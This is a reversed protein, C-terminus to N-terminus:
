GVGPPVLNRRDCLGAETDDGGIHAPEAPGARRGIDAGIGEEVIDAVHDRQHRREAFLLGDNDAMIPARRDGPVRRHEARIDEGLDGAEANRRRGASATQREIGQLFVADGVEVPLIELWGSHGFGLELAVDGRRHSDDQASAPERIRRRVLKDLLALAEKGTGVGM